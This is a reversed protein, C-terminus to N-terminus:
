MEQRVVDLILIGKLGAGLYRRAASDLSRRVEDIVWDETYTETFAGTSSMRLLERLFVDRLRPELAVAADHASAEVDVALEFLMLARTLEGEVVPVITQQGINVYSREEAPAPETEEASRGPDPIDAVADDETTPTDDESGGAAGSEGSRDDTHSSPAGSADPRFMLGAGAGAALGFLIILIPILRRM